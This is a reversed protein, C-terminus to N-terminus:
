TFNPSTNATRPKEVALGPEVGPSAVSTIASERRQPPIVAGSEVLGQLAKQMLDVANAFGEVSFIVRQRFVSKPANNADRETPSLSILDVRVVTGGVMIEGVGDAYLENHMQAGMWNLQSGGLSRRFFAQIAGRAVTRRRVSCRPLVTPPELIAGRRQGKETLSVSSGHAVEVLGAAAAQEAAPRHAVSRSDAAARATSGSRLM